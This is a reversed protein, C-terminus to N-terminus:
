PRGRGEEVVQWRGNTYSIRRYRFYPNTPGCDYPCDWVEIGKGPTSRAEASGTRGASTSLHVVIRGDPEVVDVHIPPPPLGDRIDTDIERLIVIIKPNGDGILDVTDVQPEFEQGSEDSARLVLEWAEATRHTYVLVRKQRGKRESVWIGDGLATELRDCNGRWGSDILAPCGQNPSLRKVTQEAPPTLVGPHRDEVFAGEAFSSRAEPQTSTTPQGTTTTSTTTTVPGAEDGGGDCSAFLLLAVLFSAGRV